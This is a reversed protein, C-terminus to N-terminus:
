KKEFVAVVSCGFPLNFKNSLFSEAKITLTLLNNLNKPLSIYSTKKILYRSFIIRYIRFILIIPFLFCVYYSTKISTFKSEDFKNKLQNVNYRRYHGLVEDHDSWMFTYAPVTIFIKGGSKLVRLYEKIMARDDKIHELADFSTLLDISDNEFPLNVGNTLKIQQKEKKCYDISIKSSDVGVVKGYKSLFKYNGGMGCGFDVIKKNKISDSSYKKLLKDLFYRRGVHWWYEKEFKNMQILDEKEM